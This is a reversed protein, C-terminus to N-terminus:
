QNLWDHLEKHKPNNLDLEMAPIPQPATAINGRSNYRNFEKIINDHVAGKEYYPNVGVKRSFAQLDAKSMKNLKEKLINIDNTGFSNTEGTGFIVEVEKLVERYRATSTQGAQKLEELEELLGKKPPTEQGNTVEKFPMKNEKKNAM